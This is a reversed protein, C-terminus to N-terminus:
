YYTTSTVQQKYAQLQRVTQENQRAIGLDCIRINGQFGV